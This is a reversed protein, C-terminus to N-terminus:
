FYTRVIDAYSSLISTNVPPKGFPSYTELRERFRSQLDLRPNIDPKAAISPDPVLTTTDKISTTQDGRQPYSQIKPETPPQGRRRDPRVPATPKITTDTEDAASDFSTAASDSCFSTNPSTWTPSTGSFSSTMSPVMDTSRSSTFSRSWFYHPDPHPTPAAYNYEGQASNKERSVKRIPPPRMAEAEPLSRKKSTHTTGDPPRADSTPQFHDQVRSQEDLRIGLGAEPQRSWLPTTPPTVFKEDMCSDKDPSTDGLVHAMTPADPLNMITGDSLLDVM